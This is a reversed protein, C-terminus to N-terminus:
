WDRSILGTALCLLFAGIVFLAVSSVWSSPVGLIVSEVRVVPLALVGVVMLVVGIGAIANETLTRPKHM